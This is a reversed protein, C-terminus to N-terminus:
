FREATKYQRIRQFYPFKYRGNKRRQFYKVEMVIEPKVWFKADPDDEVGEPPTGRKMKSLKSLLERGQKETFGSTKGVYRWRRDRGPKALILGFTRARKGKGKTVGVVVADDSKFEKGKLWESTQQGERYPSKAEKLMAGKGGKYTNRRLCKVLDKVYPIQEIQRLMLAKLNWPTM